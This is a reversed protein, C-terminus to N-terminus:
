KPPTVGRPVYDQLKESARELRQAVMDLLAGFGAPDALDFSGSGQQVDAVLDRLGVLAQVGGHLEDRPDESCHNCM